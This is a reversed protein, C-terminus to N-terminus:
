FIGGEKRALKSFGLSTTRRGDPTLKKFSVSMKLLFIWDQDKAEKADLCFFNISFGERRVTQLSPSLAL